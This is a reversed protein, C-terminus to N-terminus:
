SEVLEDSNFKFKSVHLGLEEVIVGIKKVEELINHIGTLQQEM